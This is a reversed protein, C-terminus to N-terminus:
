HYTPVWIPKIAHYCAKTAFRKYTPQTDTLTHRAQAPSANAIGFYFQFKYRITPQQPSTEFSM